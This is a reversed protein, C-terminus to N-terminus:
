STCLTAFTGSRFVPLACSLALGACRLWGQADRGAWRYWAGQYEEWVKILEVQYRPFPDAAFLLRFGQAAKPVNAVLTDIMEPIGYVFPEKYLGVQPDDFVWTSAHRYPQIVHIANSM